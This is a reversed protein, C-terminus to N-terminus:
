MSLGALAAALCQVALAINPMGERLVEAVTSEDLRDAGCARVGALFTAEQGANGNVHAAISFLSMAEYFKPFDCHHMKGFLVVPDLGLELHTTALETVELLRAALTRNHLLLEPHM